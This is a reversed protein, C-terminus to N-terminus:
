GGQKEKARHAKMAEDFDRITGKIGFQYLWRFFVGAGKSAREEQGVRARPHDMLGAIGKKIKQAETYFNISKIHKVNKYGHHDPAVIRVPAGHEITLKQDDLQDALLVNEVLLDALPLTTKYGDQAKIVVFNVQQSLRPLVLTNYFDIFRYGGWNLDLKSWTTVCHFDSIKSIRPLSTLQDSITFADLDGGIELSIKEVETPFRKAYQPLGFRPFIDSVKQGPPLTKM